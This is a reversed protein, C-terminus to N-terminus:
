CSCPSKKCKFCRRSKTRAGTRRGLSAEVRRSLRLFGELRRVSRNLAKVNTVKIRRRRKGATSYWSVVRNAEFATLGLNALMSVITLGPTARAFRLMKSLLNRGVRIVANPNVIRVGLKEAMKALIGFLEGDVTGGQAVSPLNRGAFVVNGNMEGGSSSGPFSSSPQVFSTQVAGQSSARSSAAKAGSSVAQLGGQAIAGYFGGQAFGRGAAGVVKGLQFKKFFGM